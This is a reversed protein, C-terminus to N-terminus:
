INLFTQWRNMTEREEECPCMWLRNLRRGSANVKANHQGQSPMLEMDGTHNETVACLPPLWSECWFENDRSKHGDAAPAAASDAIWQEHDSIKRRKCPRSTHLSVNCLSHSAFVCAFWYLWSVPHSLFDILRNTTRTTENISLQISQM